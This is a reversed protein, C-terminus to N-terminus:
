FVGILTNDSIKGLITMTLIPLSIAPVYLILGTIVVALTRDVTDLKPEDITSGCRPCAAKSGSALPHKEVLLDCAHCATLRSLDNEKIKTPVM